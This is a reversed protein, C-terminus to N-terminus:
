FKLTEETRTSIRLSLYEKLGEWLTGEPLIADTCTYTRGERSERTSRSTWEKPRKTILDGVKPIEITIVNKNM